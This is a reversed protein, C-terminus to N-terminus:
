NNAGDKPPRRFSSSKSLKLSKARRVLPHKERTPSTKQDDADPRPPSTHSAAPQPKPQTADSAATLPWLTLLEEPPMPHTEQEPELAVQSPDADEEKETPIPELSVGQRDIQAQRAKSLLKLAKTLEATHQVGLNNVRANELLTKLPQSARWVEPSVDVEAPLTREFLNRLAVMSDTPDLRIMTLSKSKEAKVYAAKDMDKSVGEPVLLLSRELKVHRLWLLVDGPEPQVAIKKQLEKLADESLAKTLKQRSSLSRLM